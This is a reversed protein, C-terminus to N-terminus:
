FVRRLEFAPYTGNNNRRLVMELAEYIEFLRPGEITLWDVRGLVSPLQSLLARHQMVLVFHTKLISGCM